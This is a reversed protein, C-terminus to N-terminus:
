RVPPGIPRHENAEARLAQLTADDFPNRGAELAAIWGQRSAVRERDFERTQAWAVFAKFDAAAGALDGTLARALGRSEQFLGSGRDGVVAQDCAALLDGAHGALSGEWCLRDWTPPPIEAGANLAGVRAVLELAETYGTSQQILSAATDILTDSLPLAPCTKRYPEGGIFLQWESITLNRGATACALTRLDELRPQWVYAAPDQGLSLLWRGDQSFALATVPATHGQLAVSQGDLQATDWLRVTQDRGASALYRGDPSFALATIAADHGRLLAPRAQPVSLSWLRIQADQGGEVLSRGDPSFALTASRESGALLTPAAQPQDIAWLRLAADSDLAAIARGDPSFALADIEAAPATLVTPPSAPDALAWLKIERESAVAVYRGDPSFGVLPEQPSRGGFDLATPTPPKGPGSPPTGRPAAQGPPATNPQEAPSAPSTGPLLTAPSPGGRGPGPSGRPEGPPPTPAVQAQVKLGGIPGAGGALLAQPTPELTETEELPAGETPAGTVEPVEETIVIETESVEEPTDTPTVVPEPVSTPEYTALATLTQLVPPATSTPRAAPVTAPTQIAEPAAAVAERLKIPAASPDAVAWLWAAGDRDVVALYRGDSSFMLRVVSSRGSKRLVAPSASLDATHWLRIQGDRDGAALAQGDRSFALADVVAAQESEELAAAPAAPDTMDWILLANTYAAVLLQGDPSLAAANVPNALSGFVRPTVRPQDIAWLRAAGDADGTLLRHGDPSFALASLPSPRNTPL